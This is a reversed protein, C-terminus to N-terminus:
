DDSEVVSCHVGRYPDVLFLEGADEQQHTIPPSGPGFADGPIEISQYIPLCVGPPTDKTKNGWGLTSGGYAFISKESFNEGASIVTSGQHKNTQYKQCIEACVQLYGGPPHDRQSLKSESTSALIWILSIGLPKM